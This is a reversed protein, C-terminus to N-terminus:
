EKDFVFGMKRLRDPFRIGLWHLVDPATVERRNGEEEAIAALINPLDRLMENVIREREAPSRKWRPDPDNLLTNLLERIVRGAQPTAERRFERRFRDRAYNIEAKSIIPM